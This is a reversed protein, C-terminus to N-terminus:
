LHQIAQRIGRSATTAQRSRTRSTMTKARRSWADATRTNSSPALGPAMMRWACTAHRWRKTAPSRELGVALRALLSRCRRALALGVTTQPVTGPNSAVPSHLRVLARRTPETVLTPTLTATPLTPLITIMAPIRRRRTTRNPSRTPVPRATPRHHNDSEPPVWLLALASVRPARVLCRAGQRRCRNDQAERLTIIRSSQPAKGM